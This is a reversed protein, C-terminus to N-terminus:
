STAETVEVGELASMPLVDDIGDCTASEIEDPTLLARPVIEVRVIEGDGGREVRGLVYDRAETEFIRVEGM